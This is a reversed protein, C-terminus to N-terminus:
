LGKGSKNQMEYGTERLDARQNNSWAAFAAIRDLNSKNLRRNPEFAGDPGNASLRGM